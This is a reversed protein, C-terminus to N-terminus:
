RMEFKQHRILNDQSDVVRGMVTVMKAKDKELDYVAARVRGIYKQREAVALRLTEIDTEQDIDIFMRESPTSISIM